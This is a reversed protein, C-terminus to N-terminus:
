MRDPVAIGLLSLGLSLTTATSTACCSAARGRRTTAARAPGPLARLLLHLGPLARVPLHVAPAARPARADPGLAEPFRLSSSPSRASRPPRRRVRRRTRSRRRRPRRRRFISRIRAHAYRLYPATNGDFSLMRDWDFVYDRLRETSLDAYKIAGIGIAEALVAREDAAYPADERSSRRTPARSPRTSCTSSSSRAGGRPEEADQPGRRARQRVRRAGARRARPGLGAARAVAFVMELHQAQPAGVVYYLRDCGLADIRDRLAALDTAAYGFGGDRKRVILPLPEGERNRSARPSCARARRRERRAARRADLDDVVDDLMPTTADVRGVIDEAASDVGLLRYVRDFYRSPSTSSSGGSGLTEEDGAQLAVVRQRAARGRVGRRRRVERASGQLVRRPRRRVAREAGAAEGVDCLHEILMGFPTGWDGVHNRAIVEHGYFRLMRALADGIM